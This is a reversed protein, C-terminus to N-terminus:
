LCAVSDSDDFAVILYIPRAARLSNSKQKWQDWVSPIYIANFSIPPEVCIEWVPDQWKGGQPVYVEVVAPM